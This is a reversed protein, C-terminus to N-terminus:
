SRRRRSALGVVGTGLVLAAAAPWWAIGVPGHKAASFDSFTVATTGWSWRYDEV